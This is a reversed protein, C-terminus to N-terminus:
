GVKPWSLVQTPSWRSVRSATSLGFGMKTSRAHLDLLHVAFEKSTSLSQFLRPASPVQIPGVKHFWLFSGFRYPLLPQLASIIKTLLNCFKVGALVKLLLIEMIFRGKRM